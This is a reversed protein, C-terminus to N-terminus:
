LYVEFPRNTAAGRLAFITGQASLRDITATWASGAIRWRIIAIKHLENACSFIKKISKTM